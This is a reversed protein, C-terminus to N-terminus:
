LFIFAFNIQPATTGNEREREREVDERGEERYRDGVM